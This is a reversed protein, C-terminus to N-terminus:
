TFCCLVNVLNLLVRYYEYLYFKIVFNFGCVFPLRRLFAFKNIVNFHFYHLAHVAFIHWILDTIFFM